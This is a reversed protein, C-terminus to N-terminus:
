KIRMSDVLIHEMEGSGGITIPIIKDVWGDTDKGFADILSNRSKNNMTWSNPDEKGQAKFIVDCQIKETDPKGDKGKFTVTEISKADTIQLETIKNEKIFRVKLYNGGESVKEAIM